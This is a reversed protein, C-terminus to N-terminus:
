ADRGFNVTKTTYKSQVKCEVTFKLVLQDHSIIEESSAFAVNTFNQNFLSNAKLQDVLTMVRDIPDDNERIKHIGDIYMFGKEYRVNILVVDRTLEMSLGILKKTWLLRSKELTALNLIDRKSLNTGTERLKHLESKIQEIRDQKDAIMSDLNANKHYTFWSLGGSLLVMFVLIGWRQNDLQQAIRAAKDEGKNLNIKYIHDM